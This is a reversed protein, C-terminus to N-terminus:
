NNMITNNQTLDGDRVRVLQTRVEVQQEVHERHLVRPLADPNLLTKAPYWTLPPSFQTWDILTRDNRHIECNKNRKDNLLSIADAYFILM